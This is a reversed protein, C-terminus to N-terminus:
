TSYLKVNKVVSLDHFLTFLFVSYKLNFKLTSIFICNQYFWNLTKRLLKSSFYKILLLFLCLEMESINELLLKNQQFYMLGIRESIIEPYM